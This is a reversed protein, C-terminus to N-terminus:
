KKFDYRLGLGVHYNTGTTYNIGTPQPVGNLSYEFILDQIKRFGFLYGGTVFFNYRKLFRIGISLRFDPLLQVREYIKPILTIKYKDFEDQFVGLLQKESRSMHLLFSPSIFIRKGIKKEYELGVIFNRCLVAGSGISLVSTEPDDEINLGVGPRYQTYGLALFFSNKIKQKYLFTLFSNTNDYNNKSYPIKKEIKSLFGMGGYELQISQSYARCTYFIFILILYNRMIYFYFLMTICFM